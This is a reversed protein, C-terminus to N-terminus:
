GIAEFIHVFINAEKLYFVWTTPDNFQLAINVTVPNEPLFSIVILFIWIYIISEVLGLMGGLMRNVFNLVPLEAVRALIEFGIKIIIAMVILLLVFTLVSVFMGTIRDAIYDTLKDLGLLQYFLNVSESAASETGAAVGEGFAIKEVRKAVLERLVPNQDIWSHVTPLLMRTAILSAAISVINVSMRVLGKRYGYLFMMAMVAAVGIEVWGTKLVTVIETMIQTMMKEWQIM